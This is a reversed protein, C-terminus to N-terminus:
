QGQKVKFIRAPLLGHAENHTSIVSTSDKAQSLCLVLGAKEDVWYNIFNVGYKGQVQLDKQHAGAVAAATVNGAGLEHVDLFFGDNGGAAAEPGDTVEYIREPLLGHAEAHTKRISATDPASSLCYVLGAKENLWFKKFDVSYKKEALLDQAHAKAVDDFKVKGPQLQHVDIFLHQTKTFHLATQTAGTQAKVEFFFLTCYTTAVTFFLKNM